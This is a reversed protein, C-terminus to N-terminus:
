TWTPAVWMWRAEEMKLCGLVWVRLQALGTLPSIQDSGFSDIFNQPADLYQGYCGSSLNNCDKRFSVIHIILGLDSGPSILTIGGFFICWFTTLFKIWLIELHFWIDLGSFHFYVRTHKCLSITWLLLFSCIMSVYLLVIFGLIIIKHALTKSQLESQRQVWKTAWTSTSCM